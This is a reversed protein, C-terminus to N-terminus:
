SVLKIPLARDETELHSSTVDIRAAPDLGPQADNGM